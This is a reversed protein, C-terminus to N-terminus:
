TESLECYPKATSSHLETALQLCVFTIKLTIKALNTREILFIKGMFIQASLLLM